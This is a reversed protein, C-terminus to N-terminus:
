NWTSTFHLKRTKIFHSMFLNLFETFMLYRRFCLIKILLTYISWFWIAIMKKLHVACPSFVFSSLGPCFKHLRLRQIEFTLTAKEQCQSFIFWYQSSSSNKRLKLNAQKLRASCHIYNKLTEMEDFCKKISQAEIFCTNGAMTKRSLTAMILVHSSIWPTLMIQVSFSM